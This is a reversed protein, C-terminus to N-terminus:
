FPPALALIPAPPALARRDPRRWRLTDFANCHPCLANWAEDEHACSECLWVPDRPAAAALAALDRSANQDGYQRRDLEARLRIAAGGPEAISDLESRARGLDGADLAAQAMAQRAVPDDSWVRGVLQAMTDIRRERPEDAHLQQWAVAIDPHPAAAWASQLVARARRRKGLGALVDALLVTAAPHDPVLHHAADALKRATATEAAAKAERARETLVAAKKRRGDAPLLAQHKLAADIAQEAEPWRRARAASEILIQLAWPVDPRAAIARQAIRQAEAEDGAQVALGFLGRLGVLETDKRGVMATFRRRAGDRDGALQASQAGLLLGLPSQPLLRDVRTVAAGAARMDGAALAVMGQSFAVHGQERRREALSARVAGPAAFLRRLLIYFGLMLALLLLLGLVAVAFTTEIRQGQWDIALRGPRDAVFAAIGALVAAIVLSLLLRIM